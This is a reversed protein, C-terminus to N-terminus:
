KGERKGRGVEGMYKVKSKEFEHAQNKKKMLQQLM